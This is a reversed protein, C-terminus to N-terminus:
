CGFSRFLISGLDTVSQVSLLYSLLQHWLDMLCIQCKFPQIAERGHDRTIPMMRMGLTTDIMRHIPDTTTGVPQQLGNLDVEVATRTQIQVRKSGDIHQMQVELALVPTGIMTDIMTAQIDIMTDQLLHRLTEGHLRHKAMKIDKMPMGRDTTEVVALDRGTTTESLMNLDLDEV